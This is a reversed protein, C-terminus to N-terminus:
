KRFSFTYTGNEFQVDYIGVPEGDTLSLETRIDDWWPEDDIHLILLESQTKALLQHLFATTIFRMQQSNGMELYVPEGVRVPLAFYEYAHTKGSKSTIQAAEFSGDILLAHKGADQPALSIEQKYFDHALAAYSEYATKRPAALRSPPLLFVMLATMAALAAAAPLVTRGTLCYLAAFASAMLFPTCATTLYNVSAGATEPQVLYSAFLGLTYVMAALMLFLLLKGFRKKHECLLVPVSALLVFLPAGKLKSDMFQIATDRIMPWLQPLKESSQLLQGTRPNGGLLAGISISQGAAAATTVHYVASWSLQVLAILALCVLAQRRRVTMLALALVVAFMLGSYIKLGTLVVAACLVPLTSDEKQQACLCVLGATFLLAMPGDARLSFVDFGFSLYAYSGLLAFAYPRVRGPMADTMAAIGAAFCAAPVYALFADQWGFVRVIAYQLSALMPIYDTHFMNSDVHIYFRDFTFLEKVARAWYSLSDHDQILLGQSLWVLVVAAAAYVALGPSFLRQRMTRMDLAAAAAGAILGGLGITMVGYATIVMFAPAMAGLVTVGVYSSFLMGCFSCLLAAGARLRPVLLMLGMAWGLLFIWFLAGM